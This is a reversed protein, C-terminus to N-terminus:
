SNKFGLMENLRSMTGEDPQPTDKLTYPLGMGEWKHEGMKHFPLLEAREVNPLNKLYGALSAISDESDTLGPVVVHRVWTPIRRESLYESFKLTANIDAATLERYKDAQLSKIDLIVLDTHDLLAKARSLEVSGSTDLATHIGREKLQRFLEAIAGAQLLPEGGCATFGGG